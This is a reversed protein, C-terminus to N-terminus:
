RRGTNTLGLKRLHYLLAQRSIGLERATASRNGRNRRLASTLCRRRFEMQAEDWTGVPLDDSVDIPLHEPLVVGGAARVLAVEVTQRLERVNGPWDYRRLAKRAEPSWRCSALGHRALAEAEFLKILEAIDERRERLPPITVPLGAIRYYLDPRFTGERMRRELDRHTAAVIRVDVTRGETSGVPRFEQSELFRLMKVQLPPDLDGIEDLFVTGQPSCVELWGEKDAEAGSFAGKKHGFLESEILTPALAVLNLAHYSDAPDSVFRKRQADFAVFRSLGIARAVLEKGSGSPGTVLTSIDGMERYVGRAYRRMDHTFISKWVDARLQATSTSGGIICDFIHIFARHFQFLIAFVFAPDHRSPLTRGRLNLFHQFDNLFPDWFDVQTGLEVGKLSNRVIAVFDSRYRSYLLHLVIDEYLALDSQSATEDTLLRTRMKDALVEAREWMPLSNPFLVERDVGPRLHVFPQHDVFDTGLATREMEVREPLFPNCYGLGAIGKATRRDKATLLAM